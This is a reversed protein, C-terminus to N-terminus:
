VEVEAEFGYLKVKDTKEIYKEFRGMVNESITQFADNIKQKSKVLVAGSFSTTKIKIPNKGQKDTFTLEIKYGVDILKKGTSKHEKLFETIPKKLIQLDETIDDLNVQSINKAKKYAIEFKDTFRFQTKDKKNFKTKVKSRTRKFRFNDRQEKQKIKAIIIRNFENEFTKKNEHYLKLSTSIKARRVREKSTIRIKKKAM